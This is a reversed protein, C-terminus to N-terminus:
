LIVCDVGNDLGSSLKEWDKKTAVRSYSAGDIWITMCSDDGIFSPEIICVKDLNFMTGDRRILWM